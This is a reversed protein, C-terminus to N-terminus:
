FDEIRVLRYSGVALEADDEHSRILWGDKILDAIEQRWTPVGAVRELQDSSAPWPCLHLLYEIIRDKPNTGSVADIVKDDHATREDLHDGNLRYSAGPGSGLCEIDWGVARLERIRRAWERIGAVGEIAHPPVAVGPHRRLYLLIATRAGGMFSQRIRASAERAQSTMSGVQAATELWQPATLGRRQTRRVVDLAKELAEALEGLEDGYKDDSSNM